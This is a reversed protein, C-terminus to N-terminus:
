GPREIAVALANPRWFVPQLRLWRSLRPVALGTLVLVALLGLAPGSGFSSAASRALSLGRVWDGSGSGPDRGEEPAPAGSDVSMAPVAFAAESPADGTPAVTSGEPRNPVPPLSFAPSEVPDLVKIPSGIPPVGAVEDPATSGQGGDAGSDTPLNPGPTRPSDPAPLLRDITDILGSVTGDVLAPVPTLVSELVPPLMGIVQDLAPDVTEVLSVVTGSVTGVVGSVVPVIEDTLNPVPVTRSVNDVVPTLVQELDAVPKTVSDILNPAETVEIAPAPVVTSVADAPAESTPPPPTRTVATQDEPQPEPKPSPEVVDVVPELPIAEVVDDVPLTEVVQEVPLPEVIEDLLGEAQASDTGVLLFLGIILLLFAALRRFFLGGHTTPETFAPDQM